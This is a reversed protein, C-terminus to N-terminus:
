MKIILMVIHHKKNKEIVVLTAIYMKRCITKCVSLFSKRFHLSVLSIAPEYLLVNKIRGYVAM